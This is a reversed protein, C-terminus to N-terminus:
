LNDILSAGTLNGGVGFACSRVLSSVGDIDSVTIGLDDARLTQPEPPEAFIGELVTEAGDRLVTLSFPRDKRPRLMQFFLDKARDGKFRLDKGNVGVVIDGARLGARGAPGVQLRLALPVM